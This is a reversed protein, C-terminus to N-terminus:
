KYHESANFRMPVAVRVSVPAGNKTGPEFVWESASELAIKKFSDNSCQIVRPNTVRGKEDIIFAVQVSAKLGQLEAPLTPKKQRIPKIPKDLQSLECTQAIEEQSFASEGYIPSVFTAFLLAICFTANKFRPKNMIEANRLQLFQGPCTNPQTM